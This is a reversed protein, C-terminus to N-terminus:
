PQEGGLSGLTMGAYHEVPLWPCCHVPALDPLTVFARLARLSKSRFSANEGVSLRKLIFMPAKPLQSKRLAMTTDGAGGSPQEVSCRSPQQPLTHQTSYLALAVVQATCASRGDAM